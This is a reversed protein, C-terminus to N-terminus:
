ISFQGGAALTGDPSFAVVGARADRFESVVKSTRVDPKMQLVQVVGDAGAAALKAGDQTWSIM